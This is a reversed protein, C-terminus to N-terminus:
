NKLCINCEDCLNKESALVSYAKALPLISLFFRADAVRRILWAFIGTFTFSGFIAIAWRSGLPMIYAPKRHKYAKVPANTVM